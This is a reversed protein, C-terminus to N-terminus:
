KKEPPAPWGQISTGVVAVSLRFPERTFAVPKGEFEVAVGVEACRPLAADFTLVVEETASDQVGVIAETPKPDKDCRIVYGKLRPLTNQALKDYEAQGNVGTLRRRIQVWTFLQPNTAAMEEDAKRQALEAATEIKFSAPPQAAAGTAAAAGIADLGDLAGHHSTYAAELLSRAERRQLAILSGDGDLYSARALHWIGEVRKAPEKQIALVAGLWASVEANRPAAALSAALEKEAAEHAGRQWAVWGLARHALALVETKQKPWADANAIVRKAASETENLSAAAPSPLSPTLLAIWYLGAFHKPDAAVLERASALLRAKDGLSQAAALTLETRLQRTPSNPYKEKWRDLLPLRSAASSQARVSLAMDYEARDTWDQACSLIPLLLLAFRRM